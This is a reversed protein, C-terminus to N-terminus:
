KRKEGGKAGRSLEGQKGEGGEESAGGGVKECECFEFGGRGVVSGGVGEVKVGGGERAGLPPDATEPQERRMTENLGTEEDLPLVVSRMEKEALTRRRKKGARKM